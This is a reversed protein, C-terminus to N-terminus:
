IQKNSLVTKQEIHSHSIAITGDVVVMKDISIRKGQRRM